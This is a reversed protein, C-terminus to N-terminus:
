RGEERLASGLRLRLDRIQEDLRAYSIARTRWYEPIVTGELDTDGLPISRPEVITAFPAQDPLVPMVSYFNCSHIALLSQYDYESRKANSRYDALATRLDGLTVRPESGDAQQQARDGACEVARRAIAEIVAGTPVIGEKSALLEAIEPARDAIMQGLEDDYRLMSITKPLAELIMIQEERTPLLCPIIRDFRRLLAADISDPRNTAAVWIVRGRNRDDGIFELIQGFMRESTGADSSQGLGRSGFAQDIEDVFVLIPSLARIIEFARTLNRESAGVWQQRINRLKVMNLNSELALAEAIITKGTGPPGALIIGRPILHSYRQDRASLLVRSSVTRLYEKIVTMGGIAEFGRQVDVIELLGGSQEQIARRKHEKIHDLRIVPTGQVAGDGIAHQARVQRNLHDIEVLRFGQTLKALAAIQDTREAAAQGRQLNEQLRPDIQALGSILSRLMMQSDARSQNRERLNQDEMVQLFAAREEENPLDIQIPFCNTGPAYIGPDIANLDRTILVCLNDSNRFEYDTALRKLIEANILQDGQAMERPALNEVHEIIVLSRQTASRLVRELTRLVQDPRTLESVHRREQEYVDASGRDAGPSAGLSGPLGRAIAAGGMGGAAMGPGGLLQQGLAGGILAGALGRSVNAIVEDQRDDISIDLSHSYRFCASFAGTGQGVRYRAYDEILPVVRTVPLDANFPNLVYDDVNFHLVFMRSSNSAYYHRLRRFWEPYLAM